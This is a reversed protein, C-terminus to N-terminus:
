LMVFMVLMVLALNKSGKKAAKLKFVHCVDYKQVNLSVNFNLSCLFWKVM